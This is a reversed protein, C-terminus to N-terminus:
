VSLALAGTLLTTVPIVSSKGAGAWTLFAVVFAVGAVLHLWMPVARRTRTLWTIFVTGALLLVGLVIVTAQSPVTLNPVTFWAEGSRFQFTTDVGSPTALGMGLLTLVAALAYMIPNRYGIRSLIVEDAPT